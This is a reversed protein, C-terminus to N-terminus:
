PKPERRKIETELEDMREVIWECPSGGHGEYEPDTFIERLQDKLATLEAHLEATTMETAPKEIMM